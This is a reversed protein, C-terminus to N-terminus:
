TLKDTIGTGLLKGSNVRQIDTEEIMIPSM